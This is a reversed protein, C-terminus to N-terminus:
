GYSAIPFYLINLALVYFPDFLFDFAYWALLLGLMGWSRTFERFRRGMREDMFLTIVTAGDLPPVPIM